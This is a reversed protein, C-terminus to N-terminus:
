KQTSGSLRLHLRGIGLSDKLTWYTQEYNSLYRPYRRRIVRRQELRTRFICPCGIALQTFEDAEQSSGELPGETSVPSEAIRFRRQSIPELNFCSQRTRFM